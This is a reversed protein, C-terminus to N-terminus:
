TEAFQRTLIPASPQTALSKHASSIHLVRALRASLEVVAACFPYESSVSLRPKAVSNAIRHRPARASVSINAAAAPLLTISNSMGAHCDRMASATAFIRPDARAIEERIHHLTFAAQFADPHRPIKQRACQAAIDAPGRFM